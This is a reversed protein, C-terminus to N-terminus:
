IKNMKELLLDRLPRINPLFRFYLFIPAFCDDVSIRFEGPFVQLIQQIEQMTLNGRRHLTLLHLLFSDFFFESRLKKEEELGKEREKLKEAM